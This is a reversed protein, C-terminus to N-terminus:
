PSDVSPPSGEPEQQGDLFRVEIVPDDNPDKNRDASMYSRPDTLRVTGALAARPAAPNNNIPGLWVAPRLDIIESKPM